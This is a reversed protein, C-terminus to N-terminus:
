SWPPRTGAGPPHGGGTAGDGGGAPDGAAGHQPRHGFRQVRRGGAGPGGGVHRAALVAGGALFWGPRRVLLPGIGVVLCLLALVWATQTGGHAFQNGLSTLFRSFWGPEGDAMGVIASQVSTPTRNDPFLFLVAALCWYGSWVLM